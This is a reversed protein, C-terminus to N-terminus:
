PQPVLKKIGQGDIGVYIFGDRGQYVNRVRGIGDLVKQQEVVEDGNLTILVLHSFKMSGLLIKNQWKPYKSSTVFTMGSPAISPDWYLKPQEMGDQRTLDTFSTGNYNVGYSIVPWGYNKGAEILNLEDGGKPGHEHAWIRGTNPDTALGQPNRHGYSFIATKAGAVDVFPNDNPIRGDDHLRYVKGGDVSLDQPLVDRQGRDGISFYVFGQKDFTIRSGYHHGKESNEAGKYLWQLDVLSFDKLRARILATNSGKGEGKDSSFTFYIWGNDSYEPHLAVDLLGGQNNVVVNPLGEIDRDIMVGDRILRLKGSRETVLLDNNPLQVMGWPITVDSQTPMVKVAQEVESAAQKQAASLSNDQAYSTHSFLLTSSLAIASALKHNM